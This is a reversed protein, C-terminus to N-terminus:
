CGGAPGPIGPGAAPQDVTGIDVPRPNPGLHVVYWVGRWSILSAVAFSKVVGGESYVFRVGPLHWYGILNECGGPSIWAADAPAADVSILRAGTADPELAQHYAALDVKYFGILREVYDTSPSESGLLGTKMKVYAAEPFFLPLAHAASGSVIAAWLPRLAALLARDGTPPEVDTQPLLGPAITTTMTTVPATTTTLAVTSTSTTAPSTTTTSAGSTPSAKPTSGCAAVVVLAALALARAVPGAM